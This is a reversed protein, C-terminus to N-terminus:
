VTGAKIQRAVRQLEDSNKGWVSAELDMCGFRESRERSDGEEDSGCIAAIVGMLFSVM